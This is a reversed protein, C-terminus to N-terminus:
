ILWFNFSRAFGLFFIDFSVFWRNSHNTKNHNNKKEIPAIVKQRKKGVRKNANKKRKYFSGFLYAFVFKYRCAFFIKAFQYTKKM